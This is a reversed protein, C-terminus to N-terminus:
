AARARARARVALAHNMADFGRQAERTLLRAGLRPVIGSFRERQSFRVKGGGLPEITFTHEGAALWPVAVQGRWHLERGPEAREVKAAFRLPIGFSSRVHVHVTGGVETSGRARRIFPNWQEYSALETLVAWVTEATAEIEVSASIEIM